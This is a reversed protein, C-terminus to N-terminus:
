AWTIELADIDLGNSTPYWKKGLTIDAEKALVSLKVLATCNFFAYDDIQKVSSPLTLETLATCYSFADKGIHTLGQSLTLSSLAECRFFAMEEVTQVSEPITLSVIKKCHYFAKSRVTEVTDPVTFSEDEKAPPYFLLTKMDKTYLVGDVAVFSENEEDVAFRELAQNNSFAWTGIESVNKGITIEKVNELNVCSYNAIECVPQGDYEDPIVISEIVTDTPIEKVAVGNETHSYKIQVETPQEFDFSCGTFATLICCAALIVTFIKKTM